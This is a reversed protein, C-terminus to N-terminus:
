FSAIADATSDSVEFLTPVLQCVEFIERIEKGMSCLRIDGGYDRIRKSMRLVVGIAESGFFTVRDFSVVVRTPRDEEITNLWADSINAIELRDFLENPPEFVMVGDIYRISSDAPANKVM